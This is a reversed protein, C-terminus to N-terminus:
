VSARGPFTTTVPNAGLIAQWRARRVASETLAETATARVSADDAHEVVAYWAAACDSEVAVALHAAPIPDDVPFPPTYAADPAGPATGGTELLEITADRRARHAASFEAVLRSRDANAYAAIVGYSYVAAYESDLAAQLAQRQDTMRATSGGRHCLGRQDLGAAGRSLRIRYAGARRGGAALPRASRAASRDHAAPTATAVATAPVQAGDPGPVTIQGTRHVPTTGDGYVGIVRDIETRLADAHATRETAITTLAAQAQPALAIAAQAAAADARALVEHAALPDPAHVTDDETCAALVAATPLGVATTGLLRLLSRRRWGGDVTSTAAAPDRPTADPGAATRRLGQALRHPAAGTTAAASHRHAPTASATPAPAAPTLPEAHPPDVLPSSETTM